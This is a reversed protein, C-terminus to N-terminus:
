TAPTGGRTAIACCKRGPRARCGSRWRLHIPSCSANPLGEPDPRRGPRRLRACAKEDKADDECHSPAARCLGGRRDPFARHEARGGRAAGRHPRGTDMPCAWPGYQVELRPGRRAAGGRGPPSLKRMAPPSIAGRRPFDCYAGTTATRDGARRHPGRGRDSGPRGRHFAVRPHGCRAAARNYAPLGTPDDGAVTWGARLDHREERREPVICAPGHPAIPWARHAQM